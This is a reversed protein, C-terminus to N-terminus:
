RCVPGCLGPRGKEALEDVALGMVAANETRGTMAFGMGQVRRCLGKVINLICFELSEACERRPLVLGVGNTDAVDAVGAFGVCPPHRGM